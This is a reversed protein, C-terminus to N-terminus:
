YTGALDGGDLHPTAAHIGSSRCDIRMMVKEDCGCRSSGSPKSRRQRVSLRLPGKAAGSRRDLRRARRIPLGLDAAPRRSAIARIPGRPGVAPARRLDEAGSGDNAHTLITELALEISWRSSLNQADAPQMVLLGKPSQQHCLTNRERRRSSSTLSLFCRALRARSRASATCAM